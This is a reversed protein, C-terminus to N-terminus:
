QGRGRRTRWTSSPSSIRRLGQREGSNGRDDSDRDKAGTHAPLYARRHPQRVLRHRFARDTEPPRHRVHGHHLRRLARLGSLRPRGRYIRTWPAIRSSGRDSRARGPGRGVMAFSGSSEISRLHRRLGLHQQPLGGYQRRAAHIQRRRLLQSAHGDGGHPLPRATAPECSGDRRRFHSSGRRQSSRPSLGM